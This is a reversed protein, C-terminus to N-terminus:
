EAGGRSAREGWLECLSDIGTLYGDEHNGFAWEDRHSIPAAVQQTYNFRYLWVGPPASSTPEADYLFLLSSTVLEHTGFWEAGSADGGGRGELVDRLTRLRHAFAAAVDPRDRVYWGLAAELQARTSFQRMAEDSYRVAEEDNPVGGGVADAAAKASASTRKAGWVTISEIRWGFTASTSLRDREQMYRMKPIGLSLEDAGLAGPSLKELKRALDPRLRQENVQAERFTRTGMKVNM